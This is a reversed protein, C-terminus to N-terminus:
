IRPLTIKFCAGTYTKDNYFFKENSVTITGHFTKEVIIKSMHLGVGSGEKREKTTFHAHFIDKFISEDIGGGSDGFEISIKDNELSSKIFILKDSRNKEIADISNSLLNTIVQILSNPIGILLIDNLEHVIKINKNKFKSELLQKSKVIITTLSFKEQDQHTDFFNKFNDITDSLYNTAETIKNTFDLFEKDSLINMEKKLELTSSSTLILSLPQKMQHSIDELMEGMSAMKSQEILLEEQKQNIILLNKSQKDSQKMITQFRKNARTSTINKSFLTSIQEDESQLSSHLNRHRVELDNYRNQLEEYDEKSVFDSNEM